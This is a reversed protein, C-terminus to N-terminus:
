KCNRKRAAPYGCAGCTSKQIHYSRRGCRSPESPLLLLTLTFSPLGPERARHPVFPTWFGPAFGLVRCLALEAMDRAGGHETRRSRVRVQPV